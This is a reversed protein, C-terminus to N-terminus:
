VKFRERLKAVTEKTLDANVTKKFKARFDKRMAELVPKYLKVSLALHYADAAYLKVVSEIDATLHKIVKKQLDQLLNHEEGTTAGANTIKGGGRFRGAQDSVIEGLKRHAQEYYVSKVLEAKRKHALSKQSIRYAKLLGSDAVIILTTSMMNNKAM